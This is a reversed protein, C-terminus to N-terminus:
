VQKIYEHFNHLKEPTLKIKRDGSSYLDLVETGSDSVVQIPIEEIGRYLLFARLDPNYRDALGVIFMFRMQKQYTAKIDQDSPLAVGAPHSHYVGLLKLKHKDFFLHARTFDEDWLGFEDNGEGGVVKNPVPLVGLIKDELGGLFGGTEQPYCSQVQHMIIDYQHQTIKFM